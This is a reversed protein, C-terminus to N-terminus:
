CWEYANQIGQLRIGGGVLLPIDINQAVLNIMKFSGTKPAAVELYILKNGLMEGAQATAPAYDYNRKSTTTQSV